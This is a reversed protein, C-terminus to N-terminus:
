HYVRVYDVVMASQEFENAVVGGFSGGIAVNIIFFFDLNFPSSPDNTYSHYLNDDIYFKIFDPSWVVKYVHYTNTPDNVVFSSSDGNAGFREPYHLTGFVRNQINGVHEMIDIEGCAPWILSPHNEGLLWLAPWTGGGTPLKARIEVRGYTFEFKDESNIRASTFESGGYMERKAIIKLVGDEVRINDPRDTYYQVENNYWGNVGTGLNYNWKSLDLSNGEFEDSWFLTTYNENTLEEGCLGKWNSGDFFNICNTENNFIMLGKAPNEIADREISTLRPPLFGKDVSELELLSSSEIQNPNDGIKVQSVSNLFFLLFFLFVLQKKM